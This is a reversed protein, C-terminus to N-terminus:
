SDRVQDAIWNRISPDSLRTYVGPYGLGCGIGWSVIGVQIPTDGDMAFLPGGSDGYCADKGGEAACFSKEGNVGTVGIRRLSAKCRENSVVEINAEMMDRTSRIRYGKKGGFQKTSGWGAVTVRDRENSFARDGADPLAIPEISEIPRKLVLIAADFTIARPNYNPHAIVRAVDEFRGREGLQTSGYYVKYYKAPITRDDKGITCHAATLVHTADILTGGCYHNRLAGNGDMKTMQVSVLWPYDGDNVKNGNTVEPTVRAEALVPLMATLVVMFVMLWTRARTMM